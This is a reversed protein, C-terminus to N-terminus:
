FRFTGWNDPMWELDHRLHRLARMGLRFREDPNKRLWRRGRDEEFRFPVPSSPFIDCVSYSSVVPRDRRHACLLSVVELWGSPFSAKGTRPITVRLVGFELGRLVLDSFWVRNRGEVFGHIECQGHVRAALRLVDSGVDLVRNLGVGFGDASHVYLDPVPPLKPHMTTGADRCVLDLHSRECGSVEVTDVGDSFVIRSM